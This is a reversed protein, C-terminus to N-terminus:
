YLSLKAPIISRKWSDSYLLLDLNWTHLDAPLNTISATSNCDYLGFDFQISPITYPHLLPRPGAPVRGHWHALELTTLLTAGPIYIEVTSRCYDLRVRPSGDM